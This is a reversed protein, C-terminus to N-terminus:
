KDDGFDSPECRKIAPSSIKYIDETYWDEEMQHFNIKVYTNIEESEKKTIGNPKRVVYFM